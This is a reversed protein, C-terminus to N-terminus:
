MCFQMCFYKAKGRAGTEYCCTGRMAEQASKKMYKPSHHPLRCEWFHAEWSISMSTYYLEKVRLRYPPSQHHQHDLLKPLIRIHVAESYATHWISQLPDASWKWPPIHCLHTDADLDDRFHELVKARPRSGKSAAYRVWTHLESGTPLTLLTHSLQWYQVSTSNMRTVYECLLNHKDYASSMPLQSCNQCNDSTNHQALANVSTSLSVQLPLWEAHLLRKWCRVSSTCPSWQRWVAADCQSDQMATAYLLSNSQM